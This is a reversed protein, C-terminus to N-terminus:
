GILQGALSYFKETIEDDTLPDEPDGIASHRESVFERGDILRVKVHAFREEPFVSNYFADESLIMSNSLRLVNADKLGSGDIEDPGM